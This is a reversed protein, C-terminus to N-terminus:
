GNLKLGKDLITSVLSTKVNKLKEIEDETFVLIEVPYGIGRIKSYGARSRKYQPLDSKKVIVAVDLDSDEDPTGYAHSGFLFINESNYTRSLIRFLKKRLNIQDKKDM